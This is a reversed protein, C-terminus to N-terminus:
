PKHKSIQCVKKNDQVSKIQQDFKQRKCYLTQISVITIFSRCTSEWIVIAKCTFNVHQGGISPPSLRGQPRKM